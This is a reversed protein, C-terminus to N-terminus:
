GGSYNCTAVVRAEKGKIYAVLDAFDFMITCYLNKLLLANFYMPYIIAYKSFFETLKKGCRTKSSPLPWRNFGPYQRIQGLLFLEFIKATRWLFQLDHSNIWTIDFRYNMISTEEHIKVNNTTVFPLLLFLKCLLGNRLEHCVHHHLNRTWVESWKYTVDTKPLM